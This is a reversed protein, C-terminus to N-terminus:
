SYSPIQSHFSYTRQDQFFAQHPDADPTLASSHSYERPLPCNANPEWPPPGENETTGLLNISFLTYRAFLARPKSECETPQNTPPDFQTSIINRNSSPTRPLRSNEMLLLSHPQERGPPDPIALRPKRRCGAHGYGVTSTLDETSPAPGKTPRLHSDIALHM